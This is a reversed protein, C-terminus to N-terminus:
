FLSLSHYFYDGAAHAFAVDDFMFIALEIDNEFGFGHV